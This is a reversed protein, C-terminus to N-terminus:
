GSMVETAALLQPFPHAGHCVQIAGSHDDGACRAADPRGGGPREGGLPRLEEKRAAGLGPGGRHEVLQRGRAGWGEPHHRDVEAVEVGHPARGVGDGLPQRAEIDEDVVGTKGSGPTTEGGAAELQREAGVM